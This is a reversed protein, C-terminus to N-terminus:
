LFGLVILIFLRVLLFEEVFIFFLFLFFLRSFFLGSFFLGLLVLTRLILQLGIACDISSKLVTRMTIGATLKKNSFPNDHFYIINLLTTKDRLLIKHTHECSKVTM